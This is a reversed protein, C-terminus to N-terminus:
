LVGTVGLIVAVVLLVGLVASLIWGGLVFSRGDGAPFAPRPAPAGTEPQQWMMEPDETRGSPPEATIVPVVDVLLQTADVVRVCRWGPYGDRAPYRVGLPVGSGLRAGDADIWAWVVDGDHLLVKAAASRNEVADV